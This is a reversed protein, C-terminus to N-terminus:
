VPSVFESDGPLLLCTHWLPAASELKGTEREGRESKPFLIRLKNFTRLLGTTFVSPKDTDRPCVQDNVGKVVSTLMRDYESISAAEFEHTNLNMEAAKIFYAAIRPLVNM